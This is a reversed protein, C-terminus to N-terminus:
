SQRLKAGKKKLSLYFLNKNYPNEVDNYRRKQNIPLAWILINRFVTHPLRSQWGRPVTTTEAKRWPSLPTAPWLAPPLSQGAAGGAAVLARLSEKGIADLQAISAAITAPQLLHQTVMDLLAAKTQKADRPLHHAALLALAHHWSCHALYIALPQSRNM